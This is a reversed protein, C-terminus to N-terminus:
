TLTAIADEGRECVVATRYEFARRGVKSTYAVDALNEIPTERLYIAFNEVAAALAEETKGSLVLLQWSRSEGSTDIKPSEELVAHANTGGVGFSSLGARRPGGNTEWPLLEKNIYFPSNELDLQPNPTEFNVVPPIQKHKLALTAKILGAVGAARNLHGINSKISGLACFGQQETQERFVKTLAAVEIPDGMQTGTGHTEIYSISEPEIGALAHAEAVVDAQGDVSPATYGVKLSGDNNLATSRIVSYIHDGDAIADELRKLVVIGAGNGLVTGQAEADFPRCHGDASEIWGEEFPHGIRHPVNITVGGAMAMDCEGSLLSQCALHTAVLSTSCATNVSFAPGKLDLKYSIRTAVFDKDNAIEVPGAGMSQIFDPRSLLNNHWYSSFLAGAYVGIRGPFTDPDYGANELAEWACELMIRHQPDLASAERPSFGFFYEDFLEIDDIVPGSKVYGPQSLLAPDVGAALLEEDTFATLSEVGDCLNQWFQEVTNAGPFRGALGVIAIGEVSSSSDSAGDFGQNRRQKQRQVRDKVAQFSSGTSPAATLFQALSHVTPYKFLEIPSFDSEFLSTLRQHVQALLLSGGGIEFFNDHIGVGALGLIDQWVELIQKEVTTQPTVNTSGVPKVLQRPTYSIAEALEISAIEQEPNAIIGDLLSQYN